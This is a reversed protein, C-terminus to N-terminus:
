STTTTTTPESKKDRAQRRLARALGLDKIVVAGYIAFSLTGLAQGASLALLVPWVTPDFLSWIMLPLAVLGLCCAIVVLKESSIGGIRQLISTM